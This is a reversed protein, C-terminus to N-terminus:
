MKFTPTIFTPPPPTPSRSTSPSDSSVEQQSVCHLLLEMTSLQAEGSVAKLIEPPLPQRRDIMRYAIIQARLQSLLLNRIELGDSAACRNTPTSASFSLRSTTPTFTSGFSRNTSTTNTYNPEEGSSESFDKKHDSEELFSSGNSAETATTPNLDILRSTNDSDVKIYFPKIKNDKELYLKENEFTELTKTELEDLNMNEHEYSELPKAEITEEMKRNKQKVKKEHKRREKDEKIKKEKFQFLDDIEKEYKEVASAQEKKLDHVEKKHKHKSTSMEKEIVIKESQITKFEASIKVKETETTRLEESIKAKIIEVEKAKKSIEEFQRKILNIEMERKDLEESLTEVQSILEKNEEEQAKLREKLNFNVTEENKINTDFLAELTVNKQVKRRITVYSSYPTQQIAFDLKSSKIVNHIKDCIESIKASVDCKQFNM